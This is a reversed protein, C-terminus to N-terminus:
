LEGAANNQHYARNSARVAAMVDPVSGPNNAIEHLRGLARKHRKRAGEASMKIEPSDALRRWPWPRMAARAVILMQDVALHGAQGPRQRERSPSLASFWAMATLYDDHDQPAPEFREIWQGAEEGSTLIEAALTALASAGSHGDPRDRMQVGDFLLARCVRAVADKQTIQGQRAYTMRTADLWWHSRALDRREATNDSEAVARAMERDAHMEHALDAAEAEEVANFRTTSSWMVPQIGDPLPEPLPRGWKGPDVPRWWAPYDGWEKARGAPPLDMFDGAETRAVFRGGRESKPDPMFAVEGQFGNWFVIIKCPIMPLDHIDYRDPM